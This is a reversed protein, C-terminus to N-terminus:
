PLEFPRNRFNISYFWELVADRGYIAYLLPAADVGEPIPKNLHIGHEVKLLNRPDHIKAQEEEAMGMVNNKTLIAHHFDVKRFPAGIDVPRLVMADFCWKPMTPFKSM